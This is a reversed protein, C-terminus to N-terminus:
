KMEMREFELEITEVLVESAQSQLPSYALRVPRVRTFRWTLADATQDENLLRIYLDRPRRAKGRPAGRREEDFWAYLDLSGQVGRRLVLNASSGAQGPQARARTARRVVFDPFVVECFGAAIAGAGDDGFEVRFNSALYPRDRLVAM